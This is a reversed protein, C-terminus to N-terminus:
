AEPNIDPSVTEDSVDSCKQIKMRLDEWSVQSAYDKWGTRPRGLLTLPPVPGLCMLHSLGPLMRILYTRSPKM